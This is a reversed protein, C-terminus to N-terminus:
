NNLAETHHLGVATTTPENNRHERRRLKAKTHYFLTHM